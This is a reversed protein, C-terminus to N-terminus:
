EVAGDLTPLNLVKLPPPSKRVLFQRASGFREELLLSVISALISCSGLFFFFIFKLDVSDHTKIVFSTLAILLISGFFAFVFYLLFLLWRTKYLRLKWHFIKLRYRKQKKRFRFKGLAGNKIELKLYPRTLLYERISDSPDTASVLKKIEHHALQKKYYFWFTQELQYNLFEPAYGPASILYSNMAAFLASQRDKKVTHSGTRMDAWNKIVPALVIILAVVIIWPNHTGVAEIINGM